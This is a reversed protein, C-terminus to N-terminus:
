KKKFNKAKLSFFLPPAIHSVVVVVMVAGRRGKNTTWNKWNFM